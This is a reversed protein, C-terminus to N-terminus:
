NGKVTAPGGLIKVQNGIRGEWLVGSVYKNEGINYKLFSRSDIIM